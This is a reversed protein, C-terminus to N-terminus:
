ALFPVVFWVVFYPVFRSVVHGPVIRRGGLWLVLPLGWGKADRKEVETVLLINALSSLSDPGM